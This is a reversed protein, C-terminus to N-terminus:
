ARVPPVVWGGCAYGTTKKGRILLTKRACLPAIRHRLLCVALFSVSAGAMSTVHLAAVPFASSIPPNFSFFTWAWYLGLGVVCRAFFGSAADAGKSATEVHVGM